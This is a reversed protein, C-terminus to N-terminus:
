APNDALPERVGRALIDRNVQSGDDHLPLSVAVSNLMLQARGAVLDNTAPAAGQYNVETMQIGAVKELMRGNVHPTGGMGLIAYSVAGPRRGRM